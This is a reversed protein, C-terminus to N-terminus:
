NGVCLGSQHRLTSTLNEFNGYEFNDVMGIQNPSVSVLIQPFINKENKVRIQDFYGYETVLCIHQFCFYFLTNCKTQSDIILKTLHWNRINANTASKLKGQKSCM